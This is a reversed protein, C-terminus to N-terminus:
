RAEEDKARFAGPVDSGALRGQRVDEQAQRYDSIQGIDLWYERIPFAVVVGGDAMVSRILDPMDYSRGEPIRACVGPNILYIGANIFVAVTPKEDVGSVQVGDLRVVGYPVQMEYRRVAVTLDAEHEKHFALMDPFNVETLIDGNMVLLPVETPQIMGLAGATGLPKGEWTYEIEVGFARGDGFHEVIVEPKYHTTMKVQRIGADRLRGVIRELLPKGGVPLMPKPVADTFPQLRRGFGGAMVVAQLPLERERVLETLLAVEVVREQEDLLPVHRISRGNMLALLEEAPTGRPATVPVRHPPRRWPEQLLVEAPATLEVGALVARRLDGDTITGRLRGEGDLLLALGKANRDICQMAERVTAGPPLVFPQLEAM